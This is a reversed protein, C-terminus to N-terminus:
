GFCSKKGFHSLHMNSQCYAEENRTLKSVTGLALETSMKKDFILEPVTLYKPFCEQLCSIYQTILMRILENIM